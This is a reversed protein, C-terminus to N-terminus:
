NKGNVNISAAGITFKGEKKGVLYYSLSISQSVVGNVYSMNTSQNPGSYVDFDKFDPAVFNSANANINFSVQFYEGIPVSRKSISTTFNQALQILPLM